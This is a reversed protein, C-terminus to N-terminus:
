PDLDAAPRRPPRGGGGAFRGAARFPQRDARQEYQETSGRVARAILHERGGALNGAPRVTGTVEAPDANEVGFRGHGGDDGVLGGVRPRDFAARHEGPQAAVPEGGVRVCWQAIGGPRRVQKEARAIAQEFAGGGTAIWRPRLDGGAREALGGIGLVRHMDRVNAPDGLASGAPDPDAHVVPGLAAAPARQPPRVDVGAAADAGPRLDRQGHGRGRGSCRDGISAADPEGVTRGRGADQVHQRDGARPVSSRRGHPTDVVGARRWRQRRDRVDRRPDELGGAGAGPLLVIVQCDRGVGRDRPLQDDTAARQLDGRVVPVRCQPEDPYLGSPRGAPLQRERRGRRRRSRGSRLRRHLRVVSGLVGGIDACADVSVHVARRPGGALRDAGPVDPDATVAPYVPGGGLTCQACEEGAVGRDAREFGPPDRTVGGAEM